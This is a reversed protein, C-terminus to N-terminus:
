RQGPRFGARSGLTLTLHGGGAVWLMAGVNPDMMQEDISPKSVADSQSFDPQSAVPQQWGPLSAFAEM